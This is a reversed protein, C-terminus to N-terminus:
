KWCVMVVGGVVLGLDWRHFVRGGAFFVVAVPVSVVALVALVGMVALVVLVVLVVLVALVVLALM